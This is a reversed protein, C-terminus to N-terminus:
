FSSAVNESKGGFKGAHQKLFETDDEYLTEILDKNLKTFLIPVGTEGSNNKFEEETRQNFHSDKAIKTTKVVSQPM